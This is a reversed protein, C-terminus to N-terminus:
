VAGAVAQMGLPYGHGEETMLPLPFKRSILECPLKALVRRPRRLHALLGSTCTPSQANSPSLLAVVVVASIYKFLRSSSKTLSPPHAAFNQGM